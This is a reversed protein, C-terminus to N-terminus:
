HGNVGNGNVHPRVVPVDNRWTRWDKWDPEEYEYDKGRCVKDAQERVLPYVDKYAERGMWCDLHGYGQVVHREYKDPGFRDRLISYTKDTSEPNLVKNDSGSFLMIPIGKLRNVNEPITLDKFLPANGTVFGRVGMQMLLHLLTMNVGGFFRNIQRHTAENLNRHNWLRGFILSCRHCSVNNCIESRSDPYFRLIQNVLQQFYSDDKSSSCSFWKGGFANYLKDFPIPGACAKFLNLTAWIPNFFVQSCSIGKIWETPITGDLLGCSFAVSGMCHSVCYVSQNHEPGPQKRIWELCARIDHRSDYTTWNNEAIMLQCIRHVTVYVRYGARTFYNVANVEITPLAFIQQDVSAGPILFITKTEISPNRPEWMHLLTKVGDRAVIQITDDPSTDNIYGTYSVSPYQQWTLPALFLSASQKAFYGMFGVTSSLRALLNKGSPQLTFIESLFDSPQIHMMGRGLVKRTDKESITVYLTSAATWFRMPSLACSSDVVKYGHFHYEENNVSNMDFDYTLNKTGPAKDDVNFLNFDGRQVMFPSGPLGACTFTGTLMAPHDARNVTANTDWAKVSLFFRAQECLGKATKAATEYDSLKDGKIGEGVHIYGSMVESFGFGSAKAARTREVVNVAAATRITMARKLKLDEGPKDYQGPEGFLDLIHNPTKLDIKADIYEAAAAHEVSREALATITAFPNVGLATPIIAGDTVILGPHIEKGNGTFVEGFHNTVGHAGTGDFSMCAGGIPHVTIEQQGLAAYFPSQVFTGGVAETADKLIGNLYQVHESKGVGAFELIPKDDKLTLIAQNSDHSMILYVQTREISGKRFYPGLFRSGQQALVHRFKELLTQGRPYQNGPMLELMTQFLPALAKPVAGEEIVFGDLANEHNKRRDIVGTITPGVPKYPSPYSRGIANVEEDTNYGFALMDGNGSMNVGVKDSMSLGLKKSRLLIETTGISGAGLFVAKKAHVWM